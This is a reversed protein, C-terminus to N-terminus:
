KAKFLFGNVNQGHESRLVVDYANIEKFGVQQLLELVYNKQHKYRGNVMLSYPQKETEAASEVSFWIEHGKLGQFIDELDGIYCFVDFATILGYDALKEQNEQLFTCIDQEYLVEYVNKQRAKELMNHSVDVGDFRNNPTKLIEAAKGTGCGLDLVYGSVDGHYQRFANIINPNLRDLTEDYTEAFSDFLHTSFDTDNDTKNGTLAALLRLMFRNEPQVKQWNETIKLAKERDTDALEALTEMLNLAYQEEEPRKLHANFMLGLAEDIDGTEKLILALNYSIEPREPALTVAKRYAELAESTRNLHYLAVGYNVYADPLDRRVAFGREYFTVAKEFEKQGLLCDAVGFLAQEDQPMIDLAKYYFPLAEDYRKQQGLFDALALVGRTDRGSVTAARRLFKEKEASNETLEAAKLHATLNSAEEDSVKFLTEKDKTYFCLNVRADTYTRDIELAKCFDQVAQQTDGQEGALLGLYNWAEKFNPALKVARELAETAERKKNLAQYVLGLNCYHPAFPLPAYRIASLFCSEARLLDGKTQAALGSLNWIDSNHPMVDLLRAYISEAENLAGNNHLDIAKKLM